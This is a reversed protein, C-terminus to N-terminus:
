VLRTHVHTSGGKYGAAIIVIESGEPAIAVSDSVMSELADM